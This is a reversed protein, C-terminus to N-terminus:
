RSIAPSWLWVDATRSGPRDEGGAIVVGGHYSSFAASMVGVPLHGIKVWEDMRSDYRYVDRRFGPHNEKLENERGALSGDNGGLLHFEGNVCAAVGSQLPIPLDGLRTWAGSRNMSYADRLYSRNRDPQTLTAGGAVYLYDGCSAAMPLYRSAGPLQKETTWTSRGALLDSVPISWLQNLAEQGLPASQGGIIFLKGAFIASSHMALPIPLTSVRRVTLRGAASQITWVADSVGGNNYGGSYIINLGATAASGYAMEAPLIGAERWTRDGNDLLFIRKEYRKEGGNWPAATWWSGGMLTLGHDTVGASAGASAQPLSALAQCSAFSPTEPDSCASLLILASVAVSPARKMGPEM